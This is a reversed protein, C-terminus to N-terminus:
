VDYVPLSIGWMELDMLNPFKTNFHELEVLSLCSLSTCCYELYTTMYLHPEPNLRTDFGEELPVEKTLRTELERENACGRFSQGRLCRLM